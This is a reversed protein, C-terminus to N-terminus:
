HAYVNMTHDLTYQTRSIDNYM